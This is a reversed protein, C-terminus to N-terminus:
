FEQWPLLLEDSHQFHWEGKIGGKQTGCKKLEKSDQNGCARIEVVDITKRGCDSRQRQHQRWGHSLLPNRKLLCKPTASRDALELFLFLFLIYRYFVFIFFLLCFLTTYNRCINQQSKSSWYSADAQLSFRVSIFLELVNTKILCFLVFINSYAPKIRLFFFFLALQHHWIFMQVKLMYKFRSFTLDTNHRWRTDSHLSM